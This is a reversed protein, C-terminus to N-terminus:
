RLSIASYWKKPSFVIKYEGVFEPSPSSPGLKFKYRQILSAAALFVEQKAIPMGLCATPGSGFHLLNSTLEPNRQWREPDFVSHNKFIKESNGIGYINGSIISGKQINYGGITCDRDAFHALIPAPPRLRFTEKIICDLYPLEAQDEKTPTRGSLKESIEKYCKEQIDPYECLYLIMWDLTDAVTATGAFLFERMNFVLAEESFEPNQKQESILVDM